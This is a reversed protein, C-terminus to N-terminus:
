QYHSILQGNALCCWYPTDINEELWAVVDLGKLMGITSISGAIVCQDAQVTLSAACEEVPWGTKPNLLHSYRKGDIELYREYVGSTAIGGSRLHVQACHANKKHPDRINVIWTDDNPYPGIIRIDGGLDILGSNIGQQLCLAAVADACYEKVIGGFDIEMNKHPLAFLKDQWLVKEWGVLTLLEDIFSQSPLKAGAHIEKFNWAKRLIGSTIDFLGESQQYCVDAYNIIAWTEEDLEYYQGSGAMQNIRSIVSDSQYRSYKDNMRKVEAVALQLVRTGQNKDSAFIRIECPSGMSTFSISLPQLQNTRPAKAM